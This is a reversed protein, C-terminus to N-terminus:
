RDIWTAIVGINSLAHGSPPILLPTGTSFWVEYKGTSINFGQIKFYTNFGHTLKAYSNQDVISITPSYALTTSVIFKGVMDQTGTSASYQGKWPLSQVFNFLTNEDTITSM